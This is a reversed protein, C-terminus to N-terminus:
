CRRRGPQWESASRQCSTTAVLSDQQSVPSWRIAPVWRASRVSRRRGTGGSSATGRPSCRVRPGAPLRDGVRRGDSDSCRRFRKNSRTLPRPSGARGAEALERQSPKVVDASGLARATNTETIAVSERTTGDITFGIVDLGEHRMLTLLEDGIAGGTVVFSTNPVGLRRLVRSVNVGGGGAERRVDHARLKRDPVLLDISMSVDLAPNLTVTVVGHETRSDVNRQEPRRKDSRGM